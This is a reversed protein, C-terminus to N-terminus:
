QDIRGVWQPNIGPSVECSSLLWDDQNVRFTSEFAEWALLCAKTDTEASAIFLYRLRSSRHKIFVLFTSDKGKSLHKADLVYLAPNARETPPDDLAFTADERPLDFENAYLNTDRVYDHAYEQLRQEREEQSLPTAAKAEEEELLKEFEQLLSTAYTSHNPDVQSWYPLKLDYPLPNNEADYVIVDEVVTSSREDDYEDGTVVQVHHARSGVLQHAFDRVEEWETREEL